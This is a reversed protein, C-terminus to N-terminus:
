NWANKKKNEWRGLLRIRQQVGIEMKYGGRM